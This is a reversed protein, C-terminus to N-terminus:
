IALSQFPNIMTIPFPGIVGARSGTRLERNTTFGKLNLPQDHTAPNSPNVPFIGAAFFSAFSVKGEADLSAV